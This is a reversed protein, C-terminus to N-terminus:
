KRVHDREEPATPNRRPPAKPPRWGHPETENRDNWASILVPIWFLFAIGFVKLTQMWSGSNIGIVSAFFILMMAFPFYPHTTLSKWMATM